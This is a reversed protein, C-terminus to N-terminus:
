EFVKKIANLGITGTSSAAAVDWTKKYWPQAMWKSILGEGKLADKELTKLLQNKLAKQLPQGEVFKSVTALNRQEVLREKLPNLSKSVTGSFEASDKLLSVKGAPSTVTANMLTDLETLSKEARTGLKTLASQGSKRSIASAAAGVAKGGIGLSAVLGAGGALKSLPGAVPNETQEFLGPAPYKYDTLGELASKPIGLAFQNVFAAPVSAADKVTKQAAALYPHGEEELKQPSTGFVKEDLLDKKVPEETTAKNQSEYSAAIDPMDEATPTSEGKLTYINGNYRVKYTNM